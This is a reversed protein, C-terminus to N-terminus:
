RIMKKLAAEAAIFGFSAWQNSATILQFVERAKEKEGTMLLYNGLGFGFSALGLGEKGSQLFQVPDAIVQQQKYLLLIQLYDKNEILEIGPNITSLLARAKNEKALKKLTIYMWNATAVYMDPNKSVRMCEEYANLAKKYEGKIFYVLGLHYWINSQLTSTPINKANPMGDPEVEDRKGKVLEAAKEFDAIANDFCRLTIYRHGRHRYGRADNPHLRIGMSFIDIAQQYQGLYAKRRGWWIIADANTTDKRYNAEAEALKAQLNKKTSDSMVPLPHAKNEYCSEQGPLSLPILLGFPILLLLFFYRM